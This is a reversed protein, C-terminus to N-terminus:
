GKNRKKLVDTPIQSLIIGCFILACGVYGILPIKDTGFIAGGIASFVSETSLIIAANTPNTSYKQGVVQLTYAVGASFIGCYLLAPLANVVNDLSLTAGELPIMCIINLIGCTFFQVASFKIPSIGDVVRDILIIHTTWFFTGAFLLIEGMGIHLGEEGLCLMFLGVVSILAAIWVTISTKKKFVLLYAIPTMIMYLGTIFGSVGASQTIEAGFQQLASAICLVCGELMGFLVTRKFKKRDSFDREFIFIVPVLSIAGIIFRIGNFSFPALFQSGLVQAVFAFGWIIATVTLLCSALLNNKKTMKNERESLSSTVSLDPLRM